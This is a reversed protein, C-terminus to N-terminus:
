SWTSSSIHGPGAQVMVALCLHKSCPSLSWPTTRALLDWGQLWGGAQICGGLGSLVQLARYYPLFSGPLVQEGEQLSLLSCTLAMGHWPCPQVLHGESHRALPLPCGMINSQLDLLAPCLILVMSPFPSPCPSSGLEGLEWGLSPLLPLVGLPAARTRRPAFSPALHRRPERCVGHLLCPQWRDSKHSHLQLWIVLQLDCFHRRCSRSLSLSLCLSLM